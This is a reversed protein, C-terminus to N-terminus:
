AVDPHKHKKYPSFVDLAKTGLIGIYGSFLNAQEYYM